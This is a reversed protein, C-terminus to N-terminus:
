VKVSTLRDEQVEPLSDLRRGFPVSQVGARRYRTAPADPADPPDGRRPDAVGRRPRWVYCISRNVIRFSSWARLFRIIWFLM